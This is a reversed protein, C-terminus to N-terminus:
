EKLAKTKCENSCYHKSEVKIADKNEMYVGCTDCELMTIADIKKSSEVKNDKKMFFRYILFIVVGFILVKLWM